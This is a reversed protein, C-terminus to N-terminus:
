LFIYYNYLLIIYYYFLIIFYYSYFLFASCTNQMSSVEELNMEDPSDWPKFFKGTRQKKLPVVVIYYGRTLLFFFFYISIIKSQILFWNIWTLTLTLSCIMGRASVCLDYNGMQYIFALVSVSQQPNTWSPFDTYVSCSVIFSMRRSVGKNDRTIFSNCSTTVDWRAWTPSILLGPHEAALIAEKIRYPPRDRPKRPKWTPCSM